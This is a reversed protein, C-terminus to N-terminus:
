GKIGTRAIVRLDRVFSKADTVNPLKIEGININNGGSLVASKNKGLNSFSKAGDALLRHLFGAQQNNLVLEPKTTTGHFMATGTYDIVGGQAFAKMGSSDYWSGDSKKTLGLSEGKKENAEEYLKKIEPTPATHWAMSNAKMEALTASVGDKKAKSTATGADTFGGLATGVPSSASVSNLKGMANILGEVASVAIGMEATYDIGLASLQESLQKFTTTQFDYTLQWQKNQESLYDDIAKISEDIAAKENERKQEYHKKQAELHDIYQQQEKELIWQNHDEVAETVKDQTERLKRPDAVWQWGEGTLLRVNREKKINELEERLKRIALLKKEEELLEKTNDIEAQKSEILADQGEILANYKNDIAEKQENLIEKQENALFNLYSLYNSTLNQAEKKMTENHAEREEMLAREKENISDLVGEYTTMEKNILGKYSWWQASNKAAMGEKDAIGEILEIQRNQLEIRKSESLNGQKLKSNVGDLEVGMSRIDKRIAENLVSLQTQLGRYLEIKKEYEYGTGTEVDANVAERAEVLALEEELKRINELTYFYEKLANVTEKTSSAKSDGSSGSPAFDGITLGKVKNIAVSLGAIAKETDIYDKTYADKLAFGYVVSEKSQELLDKNIDIMDQKAQYEAQLGELSAIMKLKEVEFLTETLKIGSETSENINIIGSAHLPYKEILEMQQQISIKEKKTITDYVSSLNEMESMYGQVAGHGDEIRKTMEEQTWYAEETAEEVARTEAEAEKIIKVYGDLAQVTMGTEKALQELSVRYINAMESSTSVDIQALNKIQETKEELKQAVADLNQYYVGFINSVKDIMEQVHPPIEKGLSEHDDIISFILESIKVEHKALEDASKSMPDGLRAIAKDLEEIQGSAPSTYANDGFALNGINRVLKDFESGYLRLSAAEQEALKVSKTKADMVSQLYVLRRKEEATLEQEGELMKGFINQYESQLGDLEDKLEVFNSTARETEDALYKIGNAVLLVIGVLAIPVMTSLVANVAKGAAVNQFMMMTMKQIAKNTASYIPLSMLLEAKRLRMVIVSTMIVTNLLGITDVLKLMATGLDVVNKITSSSVTNQWLTEFAQTMQKLKAEVSEMYIANERLASGYSEQSTTLAKTLTDQNRLLSHLVDSQRKGAILETLHRRQRETLNDWTKSLDTLIAHTSRFTRTNEDMLVVGTKYEDFYKQLSDTLGEIKENDEDVGTLRLSLTRIGTSTRAYDQLIENGATFLAISEDITNNQAALTASVRQLAGALDGGTVAYNNAVENIKDLIDGSESAEMRFAKLTSIIASSADGIDGIGDAVNALIAAQEALDLSERVSFGMRAFEATANVVEVTTRAVSAGVENSKKVAFDLEQGTANSVKALEVLATDLEKVAQIGAKIARITQMFLTTVLIWNAFGSLAQKIKENFNMAWKGGLRAETSVDQLAKKARGAEHVLEKMKKESANNAVAANYQLQVQKLKETAQVARNRQDADMKFKPLIHDTINNMSTTIDSMKEDYKQVSFYSESWSSTLVKGMKGTSLNFQATADQVRGFQDEFQGTITILKQMGDKTKGLGFEGLKLKNLDKVSVGLEDAFRKFNALATKRANEDIAFPVKIPTKRLTKEVDELPKRFKRDQTSTKDIEYGVMITYQTSNKSM